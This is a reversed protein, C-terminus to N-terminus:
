MIAETDLGRQRVVVLGFNKLRDYCNGLYKEPPQNPDYILEVDEVNAHPKNGQIRNKGYANDFLFPLDYYSTHDKSWVIKLKQEKDLVEAHEPQISSPIQACDVIREGTKPHISKGVDPCNHRLWLYHFDMTDNQNVLRLHDARKEVHLSYRQGQFYTPFQTLRLLPRLSKM